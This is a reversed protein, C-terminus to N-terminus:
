DIRSKNIVVDLFYNKNPKKGFKRILAVNSTLIMSQM